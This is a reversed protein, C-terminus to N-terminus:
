QLDKELFDLFYKKNKELDYLEEIVYRSNRSLISYLSGNMSNIMANKIANASTEIAFVGIGPYRKMDGTVLYGNMGTRIFENMPPANPVIVPKGAALGELIPLGISEWKSPLVVMDAKYYLDILEKRPLDKSIVEINPPFDGTLPKQSSIILKTDDRDLAKFAEIVLRTNKREHVGGYGGPHFFTFV